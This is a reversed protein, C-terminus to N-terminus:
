LTPLYSPPLAPLYISLIPTPLHTPILTACKLNIPSYTSTSPDIDESSMTVVFHMYGEFYAVSLDQFSFFTQLVFFYFYFTVLTIFITFLSIIDHLNHGHLFISSCM